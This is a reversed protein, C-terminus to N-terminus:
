NRSSSLFSRHHVCVIILSVACSSLWQQSVVLYPLLVLHLFLILGILVPQSNPFGFSAYMDQQEMLFAFLFLVFLLNFQLPSLSYVM